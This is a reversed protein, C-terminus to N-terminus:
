DELYDFAYHGNDHVSLAPVIRHHKVSSVVLEGAAFNVDPSVRTVVASVVGGSVSLVRCGVWVGNCDYYAPSGKRLTAKM